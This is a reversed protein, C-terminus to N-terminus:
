WWCLSPDFLAGSGFMSRYMSFVSMSNELYFQVKDQKNMPCVPMLKRIKKILKM